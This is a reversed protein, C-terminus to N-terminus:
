LPLQGLGIYSIRVLRFLGSARKPAIEKGEPEKGEPSYTMLCL